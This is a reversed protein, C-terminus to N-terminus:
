EALDIVWLGDETAAYLRTSTPDLALDNTCLNGLGANMPQWHRGEDHSLYVGACYATAYQIEPDHGDVLLERLADTTWPSWDDGRNTTKLVGVSTAIYATLSDTPHLAIAWVNGFALGDFLQVFSDGGDQSRYIGNGGAYVLSPELTSAVISNALVQSTIVCQWSLGDDDSRYVEGGPLDPLPFAGVFLRGPIAPHISLLKPIRGIDGGPQWSEAGDRSRYFRPFHTATAYVVQSSNSALEIGTIKGPDDGLGNNSQQWSKGSDTSKYIGHEYTGVYLVSSLNPDVTVNEVGQGEFGLLQWTPIDYNHYIAPFYYTYVTTSTLLEYPSFVSYLELQEPVTARAYSRPLGEASNTGIMVLLIFIFSLISTTIALFRRM